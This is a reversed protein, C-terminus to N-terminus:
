TLLMRGANSAEAGEGPEATSLSYPLLGNTAQLLAHATAHEDELSFEGSERRSSLEGEAKTLKVQEEAARRFEWQGQATSVAV